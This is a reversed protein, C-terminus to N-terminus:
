FSCVGVARLLAWMESLPLLTHHTTAFTKTDSGTNKLCPVTVTSKYIDVLGVKRESRVLFALDGPVATVRGQGLGPWSFASNLRRKEPGPGWVRGATVASPALCRPGLQGGLVWSAEPEEPRGSM